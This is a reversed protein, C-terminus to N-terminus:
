KQRNDLNFRRDLMILGGIALIGVIVAGFFCINSSFDGTQPLLGFNNKSAGPQVAKQKVDFKAPAAVNEQRPQDKQRNAQIKIVNRNEDSGSVTKEQQPDQNEGSGNDKEANDAVYSVMGDKFPDEPASLRYGDRKDASIQQLSGNSCEATYGEVYPVTQTQAALRTPDSSDNQYAVDQEPKGPVSIKWSGLRKYVYNITRTQNGFHNELPITMGGVFRLRATGHGFPELMMSNGIKAGGYYIDAIATGSDDMQTYKITAGVGGHYKITRVTGPVNSENMCDDANSPTGTLLYGPFVRRRTQYVMGTMVNHGISPAIKNGNDDLYNITQNILRPTPESIERSIIQSDSDKYHQLVVNTDGEVMVDFSDGDHYYHLTFPRNNQDVHRLARNSNPALKFNNTVGNPMFEWVSITQDGDRGIAAVIKTPEKANVIDADFFAYQGAGVSSSYQMYNEPNYITYNEDARVSNVYIAFVGLMISLITVIGSKLRKQFEDKM